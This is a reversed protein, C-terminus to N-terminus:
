VSAQSSAPSMFPLRSGPRPATAHPHQRQWRQERKARKESQSTPKQLELVIVKSGNLETLRVRFWRGKIPLLEGETFYAPTAIASTTAAADKTVDQNANTTPISSAVGLEKAMEKDWQKSLQKGVETAYEENVTVTKQVTNKLQEADSVFGPDKTNTDYSM